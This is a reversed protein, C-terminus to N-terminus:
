SLAEFLLHPSETGVEELKQQRRHGKATVVDSGDRGGDEM